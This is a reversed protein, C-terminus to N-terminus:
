SYDIKLAQLNLVQELESFTFRRAALLAVLTRRLVGDVLRAERDHCLGTCM